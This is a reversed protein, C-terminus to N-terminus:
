PVSTVPPIPPLLLAAVWSGHAIQNKMHLQPDYPTRDQWMRWLINMWRHGLRRLADAHSKGRKRVENYYIQAWPCKARSLDAWLHLTQRLYKNCAWRMSVTKFKGSRKTVPASGCYGQLGEASEFRTRDDGFESLLRPALKKGPGPLSGFIDNDPHQNFLAEIRERFLKLQSEVARLMKVRATALMSKAATIGPSGCFQTARAFIELRKEQVDPRYLRNAHLFKEWKRRGAADLHQPTPFAEIFAWASPQTWDEFAELAAPFFEHLAARLQLVLATREAILAMEDRCLLRLEVMLPDEPNLPKWHQGDTRLADAMTFADRVDDKAGSSCHRERYRQAAKPNIPYVASGSDLMREVLMGYRTEVAMALHPYKATIARYAIWGQANDDFRLQGVKDGASDLIIVDHHDSAWDLAGFHTFSKWDQM